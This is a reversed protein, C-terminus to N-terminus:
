ILHAWRKGKVIYGITSQHLGFQKGLDRLTVGGSAYAARIAIVTEADLKAQSNKEGRQYSRKVPLSEAAPTSTTAPSEVTISAAESM